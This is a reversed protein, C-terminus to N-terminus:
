PFLSSKSLVHHGQCALDFYDQSSDPLSSKDFFFVRLSFPGSEDLVCTQLTIQAGLPGLSWSLPGLRPPPAGRGGLKLFNSTGGEEGRLLCAVVMRGNPAHPVSRVRGFQRLFM